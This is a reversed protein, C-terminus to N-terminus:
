NAYVTVKIAAQDGLSYACILAGCCVSGREPNAGSLKLNFKIQFIVFDFTHNRIGHKLNCKAM